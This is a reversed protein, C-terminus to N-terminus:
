FLLHLFVEFVYATEEPAMSLFRNDIRHQNGRREQLDIKQKSWFVGVFCWYLVFSSSVVRNSLQWRENERNRRSDKEKPWFSTLLSFFFFHSQCELKTEKRKNLKTMQLIPDSDNALWHFTLHFTLGTLSSVECFTQM